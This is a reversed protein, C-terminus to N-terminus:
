VPADPAGLAHTSGLLRVVEARLEGFSAEGAGPSAVLAVNLGPRRDALAWYIERLRRRVRNRVVANGVKRSTVVLLGTGAAARESAVVMLLKGRRRRGKRFLSGIEQQCRLSTPRDGSM